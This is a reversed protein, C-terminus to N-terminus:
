GEIMKLIVQKIDLPLKSPFGLKSLHWNVEDYFSINNIPSGGNLVRMIAVNLAEDPMLKGTVDTTNGWRDVGVGIDNVTQGQRSVPGSLSTFSESLGCNKMLQEYEKELAKRAKENM